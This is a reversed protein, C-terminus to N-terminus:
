LYELSYSDHVFYIFLLVANVFKDKNLFISFVQLIM